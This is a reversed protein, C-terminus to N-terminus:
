YVTINYFNIIKDNTLFDVIDRKLLKYDVDSPIHEIIHTTKEKNELDNRNRSSVTFELRVISEDFPIDSNGNDIRANIKETRTKKVAEVIEDFLKDFQKEENLQETNINM